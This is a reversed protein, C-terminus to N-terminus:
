DQSLLSHSLELDDSLRDWNWIEFSSLTSTRCGKIFNYFLQIYIKDINM